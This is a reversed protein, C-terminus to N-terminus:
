VYCKRYVLQDRFSRNCLLLGTATLLGVSVSVLDRHPGQRCLQESIAQRELSAVMSTASSRPAGAADTRLFQLLLGVLRRAAM